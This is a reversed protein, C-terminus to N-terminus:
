AKWFGWQSRVWGFKYQKVRFLINENFPDKILWLQIALEALRICELGRVKESTMQKRWWRSPFDKLSEEHIDKQIKYKKEIKKREKCHKCLLIEDLNQMILKYLFLTQGVQQTIWGDL